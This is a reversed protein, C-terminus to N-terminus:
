GPRRCSNRACKVKSESRGGSPWSATTPAGPCRQTVAMPGMSPLRAVSVAVSVAIRVTVCVAVCVAVGVTVNVITSDTAGGTSWGGFLMDM